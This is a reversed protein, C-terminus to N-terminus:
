KSRRQKPLPAGGRELFSSSLRSGRCGMDFRPRRRHLCATPERGSLWRWSPGVSAPSAGVWGGSAAVAPKVIASLQAPRSAELLPGGREGGAAASRRPWLNGEEGLPNQEAQTTSAERAGRETTPGEDSPSSAGKTRKSGVSARTGVDGRSPCRKGTLRSAKWRESDSVTSIAGRLTRVSVRMVGGGRKRPTLMAVSFHWRRQEGRRRAQGQRPLCRPTARVVTAPHQERIRVFRGCRGQVTEAVPSARPKLSAKAVAGTSSVKAKGYVHV